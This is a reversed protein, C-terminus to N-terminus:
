LSSTVVPEKRSPLDPNIQELITLSARLFADLVASRVSLYTVGPLEKGELLELSSHPRDAPFGLPYRVGIM